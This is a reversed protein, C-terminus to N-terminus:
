FEETKLIKSYYHIALYQMVSLIIIGLSISSVTQSLPIMILSGLIRGINISVERCAYGVIPSDEFGKSVMLTISNVVLTNLLANFLVFITVTIVNPMMFCMIATVFFFTTGLASIKAAYRLKLIKVAIIGGVISLVSNPVSMFGSAMESKVIMFFMLSILSAANGEYFGHCFEGIVAYRFKKIKM